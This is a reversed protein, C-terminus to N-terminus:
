TTAREPGQTGEPTESQLQDVRNQLRAQVYNRLAMQVVDAWFEAEKESLQREFNIGGLKISLRGNVNSEGTPNMPERECM